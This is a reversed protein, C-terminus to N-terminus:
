VVPIAILFCPISIFKLTVPNTKHKNNIKKFIQKKYKCRSYFDEFCLFLHKFVLCCDINQIHTHRMM